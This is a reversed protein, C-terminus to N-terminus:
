ETDQTQWWARWEKATEFHMGTEKQLVALATAKERNSAVWLLDILNDVVIPKRYRVVYAWLSDARTQPTAGRRFWVKFRTMEAIEREYQTALPDRVSRIRDIPKKLFGLNAIDSVIDLDATKRWSLFDNITTNVQATDKFDLRVPDSVRVRSLYDIWSGVIWRNFEKSVDQYARINDLIYDVLKESFVSSIHRTRRPPAFHYVICDEWPVYANADVPQGTFVSNDVAFTKGVKIVSKDLTTSYQSMDIQGCTCFGGTSDYEQRLYHALYYGMSQPNGPIKQTKEAFLHAGGYYLLAKAEPEGALLHKIQSFSYEDRGYVFISDRKEPTWTVPDPALEPGVVDFAIRRNEPQGSNFTDIRHRIVRLDYYFELTGTTFQYGVFSFPVITAIPDGTEFYRRLGAAHSSDMELVLFLKSPLNHPASKSSEWQSVWDNLSEVIVRSYLPDGHHADAVMVVRNTQLKTLLFQGPDKEARTQILGALDTVRRSQANSDGARIFFLIFLFLVCRYLCIKMDRM